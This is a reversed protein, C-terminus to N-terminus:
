GAGPGDPTESPRARLDDSAAVLHWPIQAGGFLAALDSRYREWADALARRQRPDRGDLPLSAGGWRLLLPGVPPLDREATDYVVLARTEFRHGLDTLLQRDRATLTRFDSILYISAGATLRLALEAGVPGWGEARGPPLPPAPAAVCGALRQLAAAGLSPPLWCRAPDLVLAALESGARREEAAVLLALRAAQTAKLRGRTGFRMSPGRDVVCCVTPRTDQHFTRVQLQGTRATARWHVRRPADGAQYLRTEAFDLGSGLRRATREGVRGQQPRTRAEPWPWPGGAQGRVPELLAAVEAPGLLPALRPDIAASAGM